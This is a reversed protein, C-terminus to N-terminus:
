PQISDNDGRVRGCVSHNGFSFPLDGRLRFPAMSPKHASVLRNYLKKIRNDAPVYFIYLIHKIHRFM